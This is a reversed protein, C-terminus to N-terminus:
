QIKVGNSNRKGEIIEACKLCFVENHSRKGNEKVKLLQSIGFIRCGRRYCVLRKKTKPKKITSGLSLQKTATEM